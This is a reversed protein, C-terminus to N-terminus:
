KVKRKSDAQEKSSGFYFSLIQSIYGGAFGVIMAVNSNEISLSGKLLLVFLGFCASVVFLAILSGANKLLWSNSKSLEISMNRANQKDIYILETERLIRQESAILLQRENPTLEKKTSLDIGTAKKIGEIALDQGKDKVLNTIFGIGLGLLDLM